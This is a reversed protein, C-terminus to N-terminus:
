KTRVNTAAGRGKSFHQGTLSRLLSEFGRCGTSLYELYSTEARAGNCTTPLCFGARIFPIYCTESATTYPRERNTEPQTPTITPTGRGNITVAAKCSYEPRAPKAGLYGSTCWNQHLHPNQVLIRTGGLSVTMGGRGCLPPTARSALCCVRGPEPLLGPM